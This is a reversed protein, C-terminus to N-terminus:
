NRAARLQEKRTQVVAKWRPNLCAYFAAGTVKQPGMCAVAADCALKDLISDGSSRSIRCTGLGTKRDRKMKFRVKGLREGIIVIDSDPEAEVPQASPQAFALLAAAAIM